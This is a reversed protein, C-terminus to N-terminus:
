SGNKKKRYRAIDKKSENFAALIDQEPHWTDLESKGHGLTVHDILKGKSFYFDGSWAISDTKNNETFYSVIQETAFILEGKKLYFTQRTTDNNRSFKRSIKVYGSADATYNYDIYHLVKKMAQISFIVSKLRSNDQIKQVAEDIVKRASSTEQSFTSTCVISLIIASLLRM